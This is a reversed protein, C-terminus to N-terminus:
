CTSDELCEFARYKEQSVLPCSSMSVEFSQTVKWIRRVLYDSLYRFFLLVFYIRRVDLHRLGIDRSEWNLCVLEFISDFHKAKIIRKTNLLASIDFLNNLFPDVLNVLHASPFKWPLIDPHTKQDVM